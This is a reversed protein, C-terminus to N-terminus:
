IGILVALQPFERDIATCHFFFFSIFNFLGVLFVGILLLMKNEVDIGLNM